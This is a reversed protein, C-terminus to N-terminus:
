SLKLNCVISLKGNDNEFNLRGDYKEAIDNLIDLGYGHEKFNQLNFETKTNHSKNKFNSYNTTRVFLYGADCWATIEVNKNINESASKLANNLLNSFVCCLDTLQINLKAPVSLNYDLIVGLNVAQGLKDYLVTNVVSNECYLPIVAERNKEKIEELMKIGDKKYNKNDSQILNQVTTIMNNFDHKYKMLIEANKIINDYYNQSLQKNNELQKLKVENIKSHNNYEIIKFVVFDAIFMITTGILVLKLDVLETIEEIHFTSSKLLSMPFLMQSVPIAIFVLSASNLSQKKRQLLYTALSAFCFLLIDFIIMLCITHINPKTLDIKLKGNIIRDLWLFFVDLIGCIGYMIAIIFIKKILSDTFCLLPYLIIFILSLLRVINSPYLFYYLIFCVFNIAIPLIHKYYINKTKSVLNSQFFIIYIQSQVFTWLFYHTCKLM